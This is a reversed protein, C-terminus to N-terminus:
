CVVELKNFETLRILNHRQQMEACCINWERITPSRGPNALDIWGLWPGCIPCDKKDTNPCKQIPLIMEAGLHSNHIEKKLEALLVANQTKM